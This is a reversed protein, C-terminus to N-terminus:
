QEEKRFWRRLHDQLAQFSGDQCRRFSVKRALEGYISSSRPRRVYRLVEEVAGKPDGPKAQGVEWFGRSELWGRLNPETATAVWGLSRDVEPSDSWVWAELEPDVVVAAAREEWGSAALRASVEVELAERVKKEQGCGMRDFVVLGHTYRRCMPRLFDQSRRLCGPDRDSQIFVDFSIERISLAQPRSLLGRLTAELNKDPVLVVLDKDFGSV